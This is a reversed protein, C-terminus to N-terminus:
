PEVVVPATSPELSRIVSETRFSEIFPTFVNRAPELPIPSTLVISYWTGARQFTTRHTWEHKGQKALTWCPQGQFTGDVAKEDRVPPEAYRVVLISSQRGTSRDPAIRISDNARDGGVNATGGWGIPLAISFGSPHRTRRAEDPRGLGPDLIVNVVGALMIAVMVFMLIKFWPAGGGDRGDSM